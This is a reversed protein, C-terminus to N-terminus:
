WRSKLTNTIVMMRLFKLSAKRSTLRSQALWMQEALPTSASICRHCLRM